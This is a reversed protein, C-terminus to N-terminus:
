SEVIDSLEYGSEDADSVEYRSEDIVAARCKGHVDRAMDTRQVTVSRATQYRNEVIHM